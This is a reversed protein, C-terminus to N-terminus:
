PHIAEPPEFRYGKFKAHAFKQVIADSAWLFPEYERERALHHNGMSGAVYQLKEVKMIEQLGPLLKFSSRTHDMGSIEATVNLLFYDDIPLDRTYIRAPVLQFDNPCIETLLSAVRPSILPVSINNPLVDIKLLKSRPVVFNFSPPSAGLSVPRADIFLFRDPSVEDNYSGVLRESVERPNFWLHPTKM